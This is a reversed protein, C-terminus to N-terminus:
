HLEDPPIRAELEAVRKELKRVSGLLDPLRGMALLQRKTETFPRAPSGGYQTNAELDHMVGSQAAIQVGDGIRLHGAVGVQGGMVVYDGTVVSGALGVQAVFLNYKGVRTGHGITVSNSFKTGRGIVTSGMSARDVSCNAGMEVDDEVVANGTQPIKHHAPAGGANAHTAYGFGDQGIVCGAHLTVRSGLECRDYVTVSPYLICDDGIKADPGVYCGPYIVCRDGVVAGAAVVAFAGVHCDEGLTAAADIVAREDIGPPPQERFGALAVMAERFAFYPDDAILAAPGQYRDADDPSLVVAGAQTTALQSAYKRNALFSVDGPGAQDLTACGTLPTSGDGRLRAGIHDALQRATMEM